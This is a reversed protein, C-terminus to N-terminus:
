FQVRVGMKMVLILKIKFRLSSTHSSYHLVDTFENGFSRDYLLTIVVNPGPFKINILIELLTLDKNACSLHPAKSNNISVPRKVLFSM